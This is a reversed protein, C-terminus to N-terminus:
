VYKYNSIKKIVEDKSYGSIASMEEVTWGKHLLSVLQKPTMYPIQSRINMQYMGQIMQALEQNQKNLIILKKENNQEYGLIESLKNMMAQGVSLKEKSIEM